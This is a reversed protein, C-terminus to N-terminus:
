SANGKRMPSCMPAISGELCKPCPKGFHRISRSREDRATRRSTWCSSGTVCTSISKGSSSPPSQIISDGVRMNERIVQCCLPMRHDHNPYGGVIGHLEGANIMISTLGESTAERLKRQIAEEFDRKTPPMSIGGFM